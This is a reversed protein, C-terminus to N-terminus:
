GFYIRQDHGNHLDCSQGARRGGGDSGQTSTHLQQVLGDLVVLDRYPGELKSFSRKCMHTTQMWDIKYKMRDILRHVLKQAEESKNSAGRRDDKGVEEVEWLTAECKLTAARDNTHRDIYLQLLTSWEQGATCWITM